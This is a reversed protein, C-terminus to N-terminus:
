GRANEWLYFEDNKVPVQHGYFIAIFFTLPTACYSLRCLYISPDRELERRPPAPPAHQRRASASQNANRVLRSWSIFNAFAGGGVPPTRASEGRAAWSWSISLWSKNCAPAWASERLFSEPGGSM